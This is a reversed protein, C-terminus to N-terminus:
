EEIVATALGAATFAPLDSYQLLVGPAIVHKSTPMVALGIEFPATAATVKFRVLLVFRLRGTRTLLGKAEDGEPKAMVTLPEPPEITMGGGAGVRLLRVHLGVDSFEFPLLVHVTVM